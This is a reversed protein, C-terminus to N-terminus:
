KNDGDISVGFILALKTLGKTTIMAQESIKEEGFSNTFTATKHEILGQAVKSQYGLLRGGNRRYMWGNQQLWAILRNRKEQLLKSAVTLTFSGDALAIRDFGDVKPSMDAIQKDQKEIHEQQEAALRLAEPYSAPIYFGTDSYGGTKRITPLVDSTVWKKFRKAEPKRSTLILSYLGSENIITFSQAGNGAQGENNTLTSKEDDDLRSAAQSPNGIELIKCVDALVFWVEGIITITRVAQGDFDFSLPMSGQAAPSFSSMEGTIHTNYTM